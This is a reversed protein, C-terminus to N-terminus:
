LWGVIGGLPFFFVGVIRGVFMATIDGGLSYVIKVINVVWGICILAVLGLVIVSSIVGGYGAVDPKKM